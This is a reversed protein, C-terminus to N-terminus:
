DMRLDGLSNRGAGLYPGPDPNSHRGAVAIFITGNYIEMPQGKGVNQKSSREMLDIKLFDM